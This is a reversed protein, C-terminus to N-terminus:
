LTKIYEQILQETNVVEKNNLIFVDVDDEFYDVNKAIFNAFGKMHKLTIKYQHDPVNLLRAQEKHDELIKDM